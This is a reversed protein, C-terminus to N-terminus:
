NNQGNSTLITEESGKQKESLNLNELRNQLQTLGLKDTVSTKNTTKSTNENKTFINRLFGQSPPFVNSKFQM